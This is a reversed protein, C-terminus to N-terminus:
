LYGSRKQEEEKRRVRANRDNVDLHMHDSIFPHKYSVMDAVIARKRRPIGDRVRGGSAAVHPSTCGLVWDLDQANRKKGEAGNQKTKTNKKAKM